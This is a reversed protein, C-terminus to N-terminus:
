EKEELSMPSQKISLGKKGSQLFCDNQSCSGGPEHNIQARKVSWHYFCVIIREFLM